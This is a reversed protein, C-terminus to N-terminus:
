HKDEHSIKTNRLEPSLWATLIVVVITMAGGFVVSPVLTLLRAALGSEFAGIENSSTIFVSSLSSVRGRMHDPTLLQLITQRIVMSVGDFAGSAALFGLALYFNTSLAFGITAFGFGTAVKLLTRGSVVKPPNFAMWLAVCVSGLSPAARLLGLGIPGTKFVDHAFMPLVAVAGGFLVSFMDLTMTSLLVRNGRQGFTFRIGAQISKLFPERASERIYAQTKPSLSSAAWLAALQLFVPTLFAFKAGFFGYVLGGLAPGVISAFQYTSSNWAAASGIMSRPVIQPLISFMSPSSFSRAMGSIFVGVYLCVLIIQTPMISISSVAAFLLLSNLLLVILSLQLIRAPRHVDVMHGSIFSAGIAPVAEVLGALGLLLPDPRLQYIQWGIIVAQIQLAMASFLRTQVLVRFDPIFLAPTSPIFSRFNRV